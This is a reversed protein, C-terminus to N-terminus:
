ARIDPERTPRAGPRTSSLERIAALNRRAGDAQRLVVTRVAVALTKDLAEDYHKVATEEGRVAEAIIMDDNKGTIASKLNIWGRHLSAAAHGSDTPSKGMSRVLDQLERRAAAISTVRSSFLAKATPSQVADASARFGEIGDTCTAILDNLVSADTDTTTDAM